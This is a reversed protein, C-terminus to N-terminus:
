FEIDLIEVINNIVFDVEDFLEPPMYEGQELTLVSIDAIKFALIDNLDNGVMMVKYNKKLEKVISEKRKTSATDFINKKPINIISGIEHLSQSRDGSAIFLEFDKKILKEVLCNVNPFIQGGAAITYEVKNKSVNFIFASGSCIEIFKNKRKLYLAVDQFEKMRIDNNKIREIIEEKGIDSSFYSIDVKIENKKLFEYLKENKPAKMICKMTDTQLVVLASNGIENILGLSGKESIKGTNMSKLARFRKLLTGAVDFVIAKKVM